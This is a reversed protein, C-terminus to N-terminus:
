SERKEDIEPPSEVQPSSLIIPERTVGGVAGAATVSVNAIVDVKVDQSQQVMTHVMARIELCATRAGDASEKAASFIRM